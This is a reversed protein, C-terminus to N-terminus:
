DWDLGKKGHFPEGRKEFQRLDFFDKIVAQFRAALIETQQKHWSFEKKITRLRFSKTFSDLITGGSWKKDPDLVIYPTIFVNIEGNQLKVKRGEYMIETNDIHLGIFDINLKYQWWASVPKAVRWWINFDKAQTGPKRREWYFTEFSDKKDGNYDKFGFELLWDHMMEYLNKFNFIDKYIVVLQDLKKEQYLQGKDLNERLTM